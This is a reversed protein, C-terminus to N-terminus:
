GWNLYVRERTPGADSDLPGDFRLYREPRRGRKAARDDELVICLAPAREAEAM